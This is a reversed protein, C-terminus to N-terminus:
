KAPKPPEKDPADKAADKAAEKPADAWERLFAGIVWGTDGGDTRVKCWRREPSLRKCGLNALRAGVPVAGLIKQAEGPEAKLTLTTGKPLGSVSWFDPGGTESDASEGAVAAGALVLTTVLGALCLTARRKM